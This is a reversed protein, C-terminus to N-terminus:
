AASRLASSGVPLPTTVEIVSGAVDAVIWLEGIWTLKYPQATNAQTFLLGPAVLSSSEISERSVGARFNAGGFVQLYVEVYDGYSAVRKAIGAQWGAIQM